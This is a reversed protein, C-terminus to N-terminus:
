VKKPGFPELTRLPYNEEYLQGWCDWSQTHAIEVGDVIDIRYVSYVRAPAVGGKGVVGRRYGTRDCANYIRSDKDVAKIPDNVQPGVVDYKRTLRGALKAETERAEDTKVNAQSEQTLAAGLELYVSEYCNSTASLRWADELLGYKHYEKSQQRDREGRVRWAALLRRAEESGLGGTTLPAPANLAYPIEDVLLESDQVTTDHKQQEEHSLPAHCTIAAMMAADGQVIPLCRTLLRRFWQNQEALSRYQQETFEM